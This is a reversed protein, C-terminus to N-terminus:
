LAQPPAVLTPQPSAHPAQGSSSSKSPAQSNSSNDSNQTDSNQDADSSTDSDLQAYRHWAISAHTAEPAPRFLRDVWYGTETPTMGNASPANGGILAGGTAAAGTALVALYIVAATVVVSLAWVTLGHAGALFEEEKDNEAVPGMLRGTVHGGAAFGFALAAFFYIAGLSFFHVAENSNAHHVSVLSLGFGTGLALLFFTVATAVLAGSFIAGWALRHGGAVGVVAVPDDSVVTAM